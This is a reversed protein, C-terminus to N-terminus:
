LYALYDSPSFGSLEPTCFSPLHYSVGSPFQSLHQSSETCEVLCKQFSFYFTLPCTPTLFAADGQSSLQLHGGLSVCGREAAERACWVIYKIHTCVNMLSPIELRTNLFFSSSVLGVRAIVVRFWIHMTVCVELALM